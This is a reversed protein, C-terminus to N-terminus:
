SNETTETKQGFSSLYLSRLKRLADKSLALQYNFTLGDSLVLRQRLIAIQFVYTINIIYSKGIRVFVSATEGLRESLVDKMQTLNMCVIGQLGNCMVFKTYNGDAEFYAIRSIDVRYMEDRSNLFLHKARQKQSNTRRVGM